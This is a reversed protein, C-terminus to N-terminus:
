PGTNGGRPRTFPLPIKEVQTYLGDIEEQLEVTRKLATVTRCYTRIEDLSLTREQRDKLWKECVQYGGIMYEWVEPPLPAFYQTRNIYVRQTEAQYRVGERNGKGVRNDGQGEFRASPPDLEPSRLLHLDVLRKGLHALSAFVGQERPFPIRPFDLRLFDAYKERYSPAYLVAYIYHFVEEPTPTQGYAAALTPLVEPRINPHQRQPELAASLDRRDDPYLYLPAM